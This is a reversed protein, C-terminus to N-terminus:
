PPTPAGPPHDPGPADAVAGPRGGAPGAGRAPGLRCGRVASRWPGPRASAPCRVPVPRPGGGGSLLRPNRLLGTCPLQGARPPPGTSGYRRRIRHEPPTHGSIVAASARARAPVSGHGPSRWRCPPTAPRASVASIVGTGGGVRPAGCGGVGLAMGRVSQNTLSTGPTAAPRSCARRLPLAQTGRCSARMPDRLAGVLERDVAYRGEVGAGGVGDARDREADGQQPAPRGLRPPRSGTVM